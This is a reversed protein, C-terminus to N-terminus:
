DGTSDADAEPPIEEGYPVQQSDLFTLPNRGEGAIKFSGFDRFWPGVPLDPASDVWIRLKELDDITIRRDLLRQQLHRKIGTPFDNWRNLKM